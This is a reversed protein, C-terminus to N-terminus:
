PFASLKGMLSFDWIGDRWKEQIKIKYRHGTGQAEDRSHMCRFHARCPLMLANNGTSDIPLAPPRRRVVRCEAEESSEKTKEECIM